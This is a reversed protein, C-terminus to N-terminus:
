LVGGCFWLIYSLCDSMGLNKMEKPTKHESWFNFEDVLMVSDRVHTGDNPRGIMFENNEDANVDHSPRMTAKADSNVLEGNLYLSLGDSESWTVSM